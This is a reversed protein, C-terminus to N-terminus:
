KVVKGTKIQVVKGVGRIKVKANKAAQALLRKERLERAAQEKPGPKSPAV